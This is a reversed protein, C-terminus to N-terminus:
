GLVAVLKGGRVTAFDEKMARQIDQTGCLVLM